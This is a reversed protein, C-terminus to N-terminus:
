TRVYPATYTPAATTAGYTGGYGNSYAAFSDAGGAENMKKKYLPSNRLMRIYSATQAAPDTVNTIQQGALRGTRMFFPNQTGSKGARVDPVLGGMMASSALDEVAAASSRGAAAARQSALAQLRMLKKAQALENAM